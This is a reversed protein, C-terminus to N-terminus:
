GRGQLQERVVDPLKPGDEPAFANVGLKGSLLDRANVAPPLMPALVEAAKAAAAEKAENLTDLILKSLDSPTLRRYATGTFKIDSIGGNHSVTITVERRPSTATANIEQMQQIMDAMKSRHSQYDQFLQEVLRDQEGSM